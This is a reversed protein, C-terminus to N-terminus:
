AKKSRMAKWIKLDKNQCFAQYAETEVGYMAIKGEANSHIGWGYRKTLPSARFCAQGKSFFAEHQEDMEQQTISNKLAFCQFLVEDSTYRYPKEFLMDFQINAVSTTGEKQPPMEGKTAPCDEAVEIFADFYNTTHVKM